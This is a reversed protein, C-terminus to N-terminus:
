IKLLFLGGGTILELVLYISHTSEYVEHLKIVNEHEIKRM